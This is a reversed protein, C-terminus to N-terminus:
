LEGNKYLFKVEGCGEIETVSDDRFRVTGRVHTDLDVFVARSGAMHNMAGMDVIWTKADRSAELKGLQVFVKEEHIVVGIGVGDSPVVVPAKVATSEVITVRLVM